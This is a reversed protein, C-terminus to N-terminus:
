EKCAIADARIPKVMLLCPIGPWLDAFEEVPIFGRARYFARTRAYNPDTHTPGLTTVQLLEGGRQSWWREVADCLASGVGAGHWEPAVAICSLELTAANHERLTVFGVIADRELAVFNARQEAEQAYSMLAAEIGFWAPLRRLLREADGAAVSRPGEINVHHEGAQRHM